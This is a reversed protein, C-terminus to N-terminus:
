GILIKALFYGGLLFGLVITLGVLEALFIVIMEIFKMKYIKWFYKPQPKAFSLWPKMM